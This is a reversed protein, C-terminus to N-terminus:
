LARQEFVVPTGQMTPSIMELNFLCATKIQNIRTHMGSTCASNRIGRILQIGWWGACVISHNFLSQPPQLTPDFIFLAKGFLDLRLCLLEDYTAPLVEDGRRFPSRSTIVAQRIELELVLTGWRSTSEQWLSPDVSSLESCSFGCM